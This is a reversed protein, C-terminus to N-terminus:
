RSSSRATDACQILTIVDALPFRELRSKLLEHGYEASMVRRLHEATPVDLAAIRDHIDDLVLDISRATQAIQEALVTAINGTDKYADDIADSRLQWVTYGM